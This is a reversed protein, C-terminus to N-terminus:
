LASTAQHIYLVSPLIENKAQPPPLFNERIIKDLPKDLLMGECSKGIDVESLYCLPSSGRELGSFGWAVPLHLSFRLTGRPPTSLTRIIMTQFPYPSAQLHLPWKMFLLIFSCCSFLGLAFQTGLPHRGEWWSWWRGICQDMTKLSPFFADICSCPFSFRM